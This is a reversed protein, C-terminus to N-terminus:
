GRRGSGEGSGPRGHCRARGATLGAVPFLVAIIGTLKRSPATTTQVPQAERAANLMRRSIETEMSAAQAPEVLGRTRERELEALQDRYVALDTGGGLDVPAAKKMLPRALLSVVVATLVAAAIWFGIM